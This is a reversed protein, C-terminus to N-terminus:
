RENHKDKMEKVIIAEKIESLEEALAFQAELDEIREHEIFARSHEDIRAELKRIINQYKKRLTM